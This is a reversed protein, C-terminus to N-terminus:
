RSAGSARMVSIPTSTAGGDRRGGLVDGSGDREDAMRRAALEDRPEDSGARARGASVRSRADSADDRDRAHVIQPRQQARRHSLRQPEVLLFRPAFARRQELGSPM